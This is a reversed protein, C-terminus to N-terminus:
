YQEKINKSGSPSIRILLVPLFVFVILISFILGGTTGAALAFWFVENQGGIMFPLLGLCTSTITLIIPRMKGTVAKAVQRNYNRKHLNNFDNVIYISANVVLGGLVIFAAYGGQDFYLDFFSFVLFLGIFSLPITLVIYFPEKLNEFLIAAIFYVGVILLLILGYQRKVKNWDWSWSSQKATYGPVMEQKLEQLMSQLYENGFQYGGYYEFGVIRIYQRDQKHIANETVEKRIAAMASIKTRQSDPLVLSTEMLEYMTLPKRDPQVYVPFQRDHLSITWVPTNRLAKEQLQGTVQQASWGSVNKSFDLVLQEVNKEGWNLRENTNVKQIRKHNLLKNALIESYAELQDYNYGKMAVRYSPLSEGASNSFGQGVGYINWQVGGWDLSRAILRSKLIYPLSSNETAKTFSISITAHQGSYVQTLYKEVGEVNALYSEFGAMVGNMDELTNGNPLEAQVYLQTRQPERYGNREYVNRVFLRLAGGLVKDTYPRITEQYFTSGITKNYWEHNEWKAPLLFIPTGFLLIFITIFSKRFRAGFLIVSQYGNFWRVRKRLGKITFSQKNHLSQFADHLAPTYFIATLVSCGIAVSVIICFETLNQREKEPLFFVLMLAMMTTLSAGLIARVIKKNGQVRLHDLVVISNDITIGLSITIGAITYLHIQIKLFYAALATLGLSVLIGSVLILLHRANRYSVLLFILLVGIALVSRLLNKDIEKRLFETDDYDLVLSFGAPLLKELENLKSKIEEALVLRNTGEDAFLTLTVSNQGNIRFYERPKSAELYVRAVQDLSFYNGADTRIMMKRIDEIHEPAKGGQITFRQKGSTLLVGPYFSSFNTQLHGVIEGSTIGFQKLKEPDYAITLQIEQAGRVSVDHMGDIRALAPALIDEATKKIQFPELKANIRYVLLPSKSKDDHSRFEVLPYSLQPHLKKYLQRIASSVEFKKFAMDAEKEFTLEISGQHYGSISYIEEIQSIQSLVNELPGTAQQEIVQPPADPLSYSVTVVPLSSDPLLDVSLRSSLLFGLAGALVFVLIIKFSSM